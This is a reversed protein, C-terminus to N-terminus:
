SSVFRDKEHRSLKMAILRDYKAMRAADVKADAQRPLLGAPGSIAPETPHDVGTDSTDDWPLSATPVRTCM